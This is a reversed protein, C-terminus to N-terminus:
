TFHMFKGLKALERDGEFLFSTKMQCIGNRDVQLYGEPWAGTTTIFDNSMNDLLITIQDRYKALTEFKQFLNEVNQKREELSKTQNIGFGAPWVDDAHAEATYVFIM